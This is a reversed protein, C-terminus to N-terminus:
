LGFIELTSANYKVENGDVVASVFIIGNETIRRAGEIKGPDIGDSRLALRLKDKLRSENWRFVYYVWYNWAVIIVVVVVVATKIKEYSTM